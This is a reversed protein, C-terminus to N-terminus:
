ATRALTIEINMGPVIRSLLLEWGALCVIPWVCDKMGKSPFPHIPTQEAM